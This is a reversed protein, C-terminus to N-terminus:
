NETLYGYIDVEASCGATTQNLDMDITMGPALSFGPPYTFHTTPANAALTWGYRSLTDVGIKTAFQINTPTSCPIWPNNKYSNVDAATIVMYRNAPVTFPSFEQPPNGGEM